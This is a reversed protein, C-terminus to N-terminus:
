KSLKAVGPSKVANAENTGSTSNAPRWTLQPLCAIVDRCAVPLTPACLAAADVVIEGLCAELQATTVECNVKSNACQAVSDDRVAFKRGNACEFGGGPRATSRNRRLEDQFWLCIRAREDVTLSRADKMPEVGSGRALEHARRAKGAETLQDPPRGYVRELYESLESAAADDFLRAGLAFGDFLSSLTTCEQESMIGDGDQIKPFIRWEGCTFCVAAGGLAAGDRDYFVITHHPDFDCRTVARTQYSGGKRKAERLAKAGTDVNELLNLVV